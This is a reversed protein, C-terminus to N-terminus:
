FFSKAWFFLLGALVLLFLWTVVQFSKKAISEKGTIGLITLYFFRGGDFIGVPLMNILAVSFCILVLWWLLNYIFWSAEFKPKYYVNPKKFKSLTKVVSGIVGGRSNDSFGIGLYAKSPNNPHEELVITQVEAVEEENLVGIDIEGGPSYRELEIALDGQSTIAIGEIHTITKQLGAKIAPADNYLRIYYNGKKDKSFGAIGNEYLKEEVEVLDIKTGNILGAIQEYSANELVIGNIMSVTAVPFVSYPYSDFTVGSPVFALSFFLFLVGFFIAGTVVNAFTGASLMAMQNFKKDKAMKEEDLEVFAALFIPLFFPFFGFGTAKIKIKNHAAFIGHAFEHAIAVVALIIIWYSFYFPPLFDLKFIQPLYPILPTIPPVKIARVIAPNFVYIWVIKAFLYIMLGMLFYGMAICVYSFFNLTKKYKKGISNIVKIGWSTKYLILLGEKDLGKRNRYLFIGIFIAFLVLLSLDYVILSM